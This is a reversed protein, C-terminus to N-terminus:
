ELNGLNDMIEDDTGFIIEAAEEVDQETPTENDDAINWIGPDIM